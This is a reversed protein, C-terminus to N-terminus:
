KVRLLYQVADFGNEREWIISENINIKQRIFNLYRILMRSPRQFRSSVADAAPLSTDGITLFRHCKMKGWIISEVIKIEKIM